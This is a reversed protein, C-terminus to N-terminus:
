SSIKARRHPHPPTMKQRQGRPNGALLAKARLAFRGRPRQPAIATGVGVELWRSWGSNDLCPHYELIRTSFLPVSLTTVISVLEAIPSLASSDLKLAAVPTKWTLEASRLVTPDNGSRSWKELAGSALSQVIEAELADGSATSRELESARTSM